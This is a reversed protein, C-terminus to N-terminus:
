FTGVEVGTVDAVQGASNLTRVSHVVGETMEYVHAVRKRVSAGSLAGRAVVECVVVVLGGGGEIVELPEFRLGEWNRHMSALFHRVADRGEYARAAPTEAEDEWVIQEDMRSTLWEVDGQNFHAYGERLVEENTDPM